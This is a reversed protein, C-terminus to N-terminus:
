QTFGLTQLRKSVALGQKASKKKTQQHSRMECAPCIKSYYLTTYYIPYYCSVYEGKGLNGV